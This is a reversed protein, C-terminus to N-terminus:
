SAIRCLPGFRWNRHALSATAFRQSAASVRHSSSAAVRHRLFGAAIACGLVILAIGLLALMLRVGLRGCCAEIWRIKTLRYCWEWNLAAAALTAMGLVVAVAGVFHEENIM